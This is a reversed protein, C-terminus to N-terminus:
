WGGGLGLPGQVPEIAGAHRRLAAAADDLHAAASRVRIAEESLRKRFGAAAVSRWRIAGAGLTQDALRRVDDSMQQVRAAARLVEHSGM